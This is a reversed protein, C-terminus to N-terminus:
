SQHLYLAREAPTLGRTTNRAAAALLQDLGGCEECAYVALRGSNIAVLQQGDPTGLGVTTFPADFLLQGTQVDWARLAFDGSSTLTDGSQSFAVRVGGEPVLESAPGWTSPEAHGLERLHVGSSVEWLEVSASDGAALTRSDPSFALSVFPSSGAALTHALHGSAVNWLDVADGAGATAIWTGDPSFAARIPPTSTVLGPYLPQPAPGRLRRLLQGSASIVDVSGDAHTVALLKSDRSGTISQVARGAPELVRVPRGAPPTYLSVQGNGSRVALGGGAWAALSVPSAPAGITGTLAGTHSDYLEIRDGTVSGPRVQRGSVAGLWRGDPSFAAASFRERAPPSLRAAVALARRDFVLGAASASGAVAVRDGQPSLALGSQKGTLFRQALARPVPTAWVRATGDASATALQSDDLSLGADTVEGTHGYLVEVPTGFFSNFVRATNDAAGTVVYSGTHSFAISQITGTHGVLPVDSRDSFTYVHAISGRVNAYALEDGRPSFAVASAAGPFTMLPTGTRVAYVVVGGSQSATISGLGAVALRRSDPSFALDHSLDPQAISALRRGTHGDFVTLTEHAHENRSLQASVRAMCAVVVSGDPSWRLCAPNGQAALSTQTELGGSRVDWLQLAGALDLTAATRGDPALAAQVGTTPLRRVIAGTAANWITVQSAGTLALRGTGDWSIQSFLGPARLILPRAGAGPRVIQAQDAGPEAILLRTGDPSWLADGIAGRPNTYRQRVHSEALAMRLAERTPTGPDVRAAQVALLVSLEPDSTYQNQANADLERAYAVDSQHVADARQILAVVALAVAVVLAVAVAGFVVRGRRRAVDRSAQVFQAQLETPQPQKAAAETLWREASELDSGRLLRARDHGGREWNIAQAAWQTHAKAHELDTDIAELLTRLGEDFSDQDRLFVWNLGAAEPHVEQPDVDRHVIPLIRKRRQIAHELEQACVPSKVSDPSLVLLFADAQDIGDEIERQWQASAPIDEWD